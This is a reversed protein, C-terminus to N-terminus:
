EGPCPSRSARSDSPKSRRLPEPVAAQEGLATLPECPHHDNWVGGAPKDAPKDPPGDIRAPSGPELRKGAGLWHKPKPMEAGRRGQRDDGLPTKSQSARACSPRGRRRQGPCGPPRSPPPPSALSGGPRGRRRSVSSAPSSAVSRSAPKSPRLAEATVRGRPTRRRPRAQPGEGPGRRRGAGAPEPPASRGSAGAGEWSGVGRM